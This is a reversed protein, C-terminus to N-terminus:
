IIMKQLIQQLHHRENNIKQQKSKGITAAKIDTFLSSRSLAFTSAPHSTFETSGQVQPMIWHEESPKTTVRYTNRKREQVSYQSKNERPM